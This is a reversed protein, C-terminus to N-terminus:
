FSGGKHLVHVPNHHSANLYHHNQTSKDRSRTTNTRCNTRTDPNVFSCPPMLVSTIRHANPVVSSNWWYTLCTHGFRGFITATPEQQRSPAMQPFVSYM